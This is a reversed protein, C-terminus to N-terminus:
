ASCLRSKSATVKASMSPSGSVARDSRARMMCAAPKVGQGWPMFSYRYRPCPAPAGAAQAAAAAVASSPNRAGATLAADGCGANASRHDPRMAPM